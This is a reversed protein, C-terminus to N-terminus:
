RSAAPKISNLRMSGPAVYPAPSPRAILWRIAVASPPSRVIRLSDPAPEANVIQSGVQRWRSCRIASTCYGPSASLRASVPGSQNLLTGVVGAPKWTHERSRGRLPFRDGPSGTRGSYGCRTLIHARCRVCDHLRLSCPGCEHWLSSSLTSVGSRFHHAAACHDAGPRDDAPGPLDAARAPSAAARCAPTQRPPAAMSPRPAGNRTAAPACRGLGNRSVSM